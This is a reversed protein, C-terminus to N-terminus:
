DPTKTIEKAPTGAYFKGQELRMDKLVVSHLGLTVNDEIVVGPMIVSFGGILCNNGIKIKKMVLKKEGIHGTLHSWGGILTQEGIEVLYPDHIIESGALMSSKGITLGVLKLYRARLPVLPLISILKLSPRYLVFFLTYKFFNWDLITIDYEGEDVRIRLLRIFLGPLFTEIIILLFFLIVIFGSFLLLHLLNGLDLHGLVFLFLWLLPFLGITYALLPLLLLALGRSLSKLSFDYKQMGGRYGDRYRAMDRRLETQNYLTKRLM